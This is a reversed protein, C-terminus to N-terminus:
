FLDRLSKGSFDAGTMYDKQPKEASPASEAISAAAKKAKAKERVASGKSLQLLEYGKRFDLNGQGDIPSYKDMVAMLENRASPDRDFDLGNEEAVEDVSTKVWDKWKDAEAQRRKEGEVVEAKAEERHKAFMRAQDDKYSEWVAPDDSGFWSPIGEPKKDMSQLRSEIEDLKSLKENMAQVTSKLEKNEAYIKKWRPNKHFPVDEEQTTNPAEPEKAGEVTPATQEESNETPSESPTSVETKDGNAGPEEKAEIKDPGLVDGESPVGALFDEAPSM